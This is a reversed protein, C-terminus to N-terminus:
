GTTEEEDDDLEENLEDLGRAVLLAAVGLVGTLITNVILTILGALEM